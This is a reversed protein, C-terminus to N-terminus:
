SKRRKFYPRITNFILSFLRERKQVEFIVPLSVIALCFLRLATSSLVGGFVVFRDIWLFNFLFYIFYAGVGLYFKLMDGWGMIHKAAYTFVIMFFCFYSLSTAFAVGEIGFGKKIFLYNLLIAVIVAPGYLFALINQKHITFILTTSLENVIMFFYGFILIKMATLGPTFHPLLYYILPEMIFILAVLLIPTLRSIIYTPKLIMGKIDKVDKTAGYQEQIHPFVVVHFFTPLNRMQQVAMTGIAYFGLAEISLMKAIMVSDVSLLTLYVFNSLLLAFGIKILSVIKQWNLHFSFSIGNTKKAIYFSATNSIVLGVILGHVGFLYAGALSFLAVLIANIVIMRSLEPVRKGARLIILILNYCHTAIILFGVIKMGIRLVPDKFIIGSLFWIIVASIVSVTILYSFTINQLDKARERDGAGIAQPMERYLAKGVGMSLYGGYKQVIKLLVLYGTGTVGLLSKTLIGTFFGIFLSIYNATSYRFTDKIIKQKDIKM